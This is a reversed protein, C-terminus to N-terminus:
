RGRGAMDGMWIEGHLKLRRLLPARDSTHRKKGTTEETTEGDTAMM